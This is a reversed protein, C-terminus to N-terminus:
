MPEIQRVPRDLPCRFCNIENVISCNRLSKRGFMKELRNDIDHFSVAELFKLDKIKKELNVEVDLLSAKLNSNELGAMGIKFYGTAIKDNYRSSNFKEFFNSSEDDHSLGTNLDKIQENKDNLKSYIVSRELQLEAITHQGM